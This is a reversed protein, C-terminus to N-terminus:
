VSFYQRKIKDLIHQPCNCPDWLEVGAAKAAKTPNEHDLFQRYPSGKMDWLKLITLRFMGRCAEQVKETGKIGAEDSDMMVVLHKIGALELTKAKAKGFAQTGFICMAPIGHEILRLCDRQGEVLVMTNSELKKMLHVSHDFPFLGQSLSWKGAANYYSPQDGEKKLRARFFGVQEDNINVPLYIFKTSGWRQYEDSWKYCMRGGLEILLNTPISRWRKNRPIDWFKFTDERYLTEKTALFEQARAMLDIAYEEKPEGRKFPQLHLREALQDWNAKAGCSYCKFSGAWTTNLSLSGSPNTDNHFPCRIFMREGYEKKEGGYSSLQAKIFDLKNLRTVADM